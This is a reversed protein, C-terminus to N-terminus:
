KSRTLVTAESSVQSVEGIIKRRRTVYVMAGILGGILSLPAVFWLILFGCAGIVAGITAGAAATIIVAAIVASYYVFSRRVSWMFRANLSERRVYWTVTVVGLAVGAIAGIGAGLTLVAVPAPGSYVFALLDVM